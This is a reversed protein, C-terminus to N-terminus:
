PGQGSKNACSGLSPWRRCDAAFGDQNDNADRRLARVLSIVLRVAQRFPTRDRGRSIRAPNRRDRPPPSDNGQWRSAGLPRSRAAYGGGCVPSYCRVATRIPTNPRPHAHDIKESVRGLPCQVTYAVVQRIQRDRNKHPAFRSSDPTCGPSRLSPCFTYRDHFANSDITVFDQATFCTNKTAVQHSM